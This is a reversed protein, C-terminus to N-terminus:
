KPQKDIEFQQNLVKNAKELEAKSQQVQDMGANLKTSVLALAQRTQEYMKEANQAETQMAITQADQQHTTYLTISVVAILAAAISAWAVFMARTGPLTVKTTKAKEDLQDIMSVIRAELDHPVEITEKAHLALFLAKEKELQPPVTENTFYDLLQKEEDLTTDGDYYKQLLLDINNRNM